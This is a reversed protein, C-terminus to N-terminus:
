NILLDISLALPCCAVVEFVAGILHGFSIIIRTHAHFLASMLFSSLHHSSSVCVQAQITLCLTLASWRSHPSQQTQTHDVAVM